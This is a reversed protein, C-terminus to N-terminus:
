RQITTTCTAHAQTGEYQTKLFSAVYLPEKQEQIKQKLPNICTDDISVASKQSYIVVSM